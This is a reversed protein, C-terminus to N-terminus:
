EQTAASTFRQYEREVLEANPGGPLILLRHRFTVSRGAELTLNLETKGESFVKEGLPNAAFLGYGRAHWYTPYGPNQPHDLIALTVPENNGVTGALLTWRGRTGWVADGKLGESSVYMGSVGTNDLVPVATPRGAADTFLEPKDAPQELSRAVRLGLVGEKNDRFMVREGLATVTTVRDVSRSDADARFIFQTQERLLPKGDPRVWDTEVVLQATGEGSKAEVIRKHLITGMKPAQDPKIADSNNWFDLGNVDGHNFWLGVHHPHDVREGKRPDLPFGRTVLTGKATRLPYLVPKKLTTPYTYSTFPKGDVTVDVRRGAENPTVQIRPAPAASVAWMAPLMLVAVTIGVAAAIGEGIFERCRASMVSGGEFM